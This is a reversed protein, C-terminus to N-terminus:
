KFDSESLEISSGARVEGSIMKNAVAQEISDQIARNMPRAGFKPDIGFKVRLPQGAKLKAELHERVFVEEVGRTLLETIAAANTVTKAMCRLEITGYSSAWCAWVGSSIM